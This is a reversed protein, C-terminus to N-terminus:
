VDEPHERKQVLGSEVVPEHTVRRFLECLTDFGVADNVDHEFTNQVSGLGM